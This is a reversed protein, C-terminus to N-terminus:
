NTTLLFELDDGVNRIQYTRSARNVVEPDHTAVILSQSFNSELWDLVTTATGEDLSSTPEDLILYRPERLLARGIGLRLLQGGSILNLREGDDGEDSAFDNSELGLGNALFKIRQLSELDADAGLLLNRQLSGPLLVPVQPCYGWMDQQDRLGENLFPLSKLFSSKGIGSTGTIAVWEGESVILPDKIVLARGNPMAVRAGKKVLLKNRSSVRVSASVSSEPSLNTLDAPLDTLQSDSRSVQLYQIATQIPVLATGLRYLAGAVFGLEAGLEILSSFLLVTGILLSLSLLAVLELYYRPVFQLLRLNSLAFGSEKRVRFVQDSWYDRAAGRSLALELQISFVNRLVRLSQKDTQKVVEQQKRVNRLIPRLLVLLSLTLFLIAGLGLLPSVIFSAIGLVLFLSTEGVLEVKSNLLGAIRGRAGRTYFLQVSELDKGLHQTTTGTLSSKLLLSAYRAELYTSYRTSVFILSLSFLAKSLFLVIVAGGLILVGTQTVPGDPIYTSTLFNPRLYSGSAVSGVLFSLVAVGALDLMNILTRGLLIIHLVVVSFTPLM